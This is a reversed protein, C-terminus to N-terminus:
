SRSREAQRHHLALAVLVTYLLSLVISNRADILIPNFLATVFMCILGVTAVLALAAHDDRGAARLSRVLWIAMGIAAISWGAFLLGGIWGGSIAMQLFDNHVPVRRFPGTVDSPVSIDRTFSDGIVPSKSFRDLGIRLLTERTGTNDIKGVQKFYDVRLTTLSTSSLAVFLGALASCSALILPGTRRATALVTVSAVVLVLVFTLAPYAWFAPVTLAVIVTLVLWRRLLWAAVLGMAVFYVRTHKFDDIPLGTWGQVLVFYSIAAYATSVFLLVSTLRRAQQPQSLPLPAWVHILAVLAPLFFALANDPQDLFLRGILSGTLGWVLLVVLPLDVILLQGSRPRTLVVGVILVATAYALERPGLVVVDTALIALAATVVVTTRDWGARGAEVAAARPRAAVAVALVAVFSLAVVILGIDIPVWAVVM